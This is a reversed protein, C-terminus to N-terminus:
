PTPELRARIFGKKKYAAVQHSAQKESNLGTLMLEYMRKHSPGSVRVIFCGEDTELTLNSAMYFAHKWSKTKWLFITPGEPESKNGYSDVYDGQVFTTDTVPLHDLLTLEQLKVPVIGFPVMSVKMAASRSLDIVRSKKFPGRDNIRVVVTQRNLKNTVLVISQFPLTRHAATFDTQDYVEGNSTKRGNFEDHYFSAKGSWQISDASQGHSHFRFTLVLLLCFFFQPRM